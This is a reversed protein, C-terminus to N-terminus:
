RPGTASTADVVTVPLPKNQRTRSRAVKLATIIEHSAFPKQCVPVGAYNEPVIGPNSATIFVFPVDKSILVDALRCDKIEGLGIDLVAADIREHELLAISEEFTGAPGVM